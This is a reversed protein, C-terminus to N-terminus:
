CGVERLHGPDDSRSVRCRREEWPRVTLAGAHRADPHDHRHVGSRVVSLYGEGESDSVRLGLLCPRGLFEKQVIEGPGAV